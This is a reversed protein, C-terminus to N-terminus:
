KSKRKPWQIDISRKNKDIFKFRCLIADVPLSKAIKEAWEIAVINQRDAIIKKFNMPKLDGINNLRYLDFHYLNKFKKNKLAFRKMVLFSPSLVRDKVGIGNAFGQLFTTKGSGLNGLLALVLANRDAGLKLAIKATERATQRTKKVSASTM